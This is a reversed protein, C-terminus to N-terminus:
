SYRFSEDFIAEDVGIGRENMRTLILPRIGTAHFEGEIVGGATVGTRKFCFIEQMNVVSEEMGTIEQVSTIVRHGDALREVHVILNLASAMQQRAVLSPIPADGMSLMHELRTLSDRPSNAHITSLSGDHGTNMAQLMDIAEAGRVEGVVIRDPRMRLANRLLDRQKVEGKGEINPPRTELRVVHPQQLKLEASDEISIIRESHPISSSLVNLLTTKGSGTGGSILINARSKVVGALFDSMGTTMTKFNVLDRATYPDISFKRISLSPGDIALPPIIANVRSGDPLRADVMPSSEDIRRGVGTAIKEIIRLLHEDDEFRVKTKELVGHREIYINRADNVLIDSVSPDALLDEIPGLGLVENLVDDVLVTREASNLVTAQEEMLRRVVQSIQSRVEDPSLEEIMKLNIREMLQHHILNKLAQLESTRAYLNHQKAALAM